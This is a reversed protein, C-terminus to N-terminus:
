PDADKALDPDIARYRRGGLHEILGREVLKAAPRHDFSGIERGRPGAAVILDLLNRQQETPELHEIETAAAAVRSDGPISWLSTSKPGGMSGKPPRGVSGRLEIKRARALSSLTNGAQEVTVGLKAAIWHAAM